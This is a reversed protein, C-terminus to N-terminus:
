WVATHHPTGHHLPPHSPTTATAAPVVLSQRSEPRAVSPAVTTVSATVATVCQPVECASSVTINVQQQPTGFRRNTSCCLSMTSGQPDLTELVGSCGRRQPPQQQQQQQPHHHGGGAVSGASNNAGDVSGCLPNEIGLECSSLSGCRPLIAVPPPTPTSVHRGGSAGVYEIVPVNSASCTGNNGSGPPSQVALRQSVVSCPPTRGRHPLLPSPSTM